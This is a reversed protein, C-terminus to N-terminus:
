FISIDHYIPQVIVKGDKNLIGQKDDKYVKYCNDSTEEIANYQPVILEVGDTNIIGWLNDHLIFARGSNFKDIFQYIPAKV